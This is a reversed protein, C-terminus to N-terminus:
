GLVEWRGKKTPGVHRLRSAARLGRLHHRVSAESMGPAEALTRVSSEPRRRLHRLLNEKTNKRPAKPAIDPATKSMEEPAVEFTAPRLFSSMFLGAVENFTM